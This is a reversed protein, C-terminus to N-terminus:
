VPWLIKKVYKVVGTLSIEKDDTIQVRIYCSNGDIIHYIENNIVMSLHFRVSTWKSRYKKVHISFPSKISCPPVPLESGVDGLVHYLEDLSYKKEVGWEIHRMIAGIYKGVHDGTLLCKFFEHACIIERKEQVSEARLTGLFNIPKIIPNQLPKQKMREVHYELNLDDIYPGVIYRYLNPDYLHEQAVVFKQDM